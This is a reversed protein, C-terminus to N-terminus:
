QEKNWTARELAQIEAIVEPITDYWKKGVPPSIVCENGDPNCLYFCHLSRKANDPRYTDHYIGFQNPAAKEAKIDLKLAPDRLLANNLDNGDFQLPEPIM